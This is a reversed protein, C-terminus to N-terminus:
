KQEDDNKKNNLIPKGVKIVFTNDTNRPFEKVLLPIISKWKEMKIRIREEQSIYKPQM